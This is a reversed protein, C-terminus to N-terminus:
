NQGWSALVTGSKAGLFIETGLTGLNDRIFLTLIALITGLFDAAGLNTELKFSEFVQSM